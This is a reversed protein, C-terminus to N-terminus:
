GVAFFVVTETDSWITCNGSGVVYIQKGQAQASLLVAVMSQGAVTSADIAYRGDLGPGQCAPHTGVRSGTTWFLVAGNHTPLVGHITGFTSESAGVPASATMATIVGAMTLLKGIAGFKM